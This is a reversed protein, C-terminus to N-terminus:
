AALSGAPELGMRMRAFLRKRSRFVIMKMNSARVGLRKAAEAYSLRQVEVLELALRDRQALEDWAALYRSLFLAWSARLLSLQEGQDVIVEPGMREDAPELPGEPLEALGERPLKARARRVLNGAITRVWVRFSADHEDRFGSPYRYVNVFTDQLLEIADLRAPGQRLLSRIWTLVDQRATRYLAEYAADSGTDRFIAMLRTAARDRATAASGSRARAPRPSKDDSPRAPAPAPLLDLQVM